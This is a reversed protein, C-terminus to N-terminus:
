APRWWRNRGSLALLETLDDTCGPVPISPAFAEPRFWRDKAQKARDLVSALLDNPLEDHAGIARALDWAHVTLDMTVLWGLDELTSRGTPIPAPVSWDTIAAFAQTSAASAAAWDDVLAPGDATTAQSPRGTVGAAFRNQVNIVHRVLRQVDWDDDPTSSTWQGAGVARIRNDFQRVASRYYPVLMM